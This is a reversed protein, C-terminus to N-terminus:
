LSITFCMHFQDLNAKNRKYAFFKKLRYPRVKPNVCVVQGTYELFWCGSLNAEFLRGTRNEGEIRKPNNCTRCTAFNIYTCEARWPIASAETLANVDASKTPILPQSIYVSPM